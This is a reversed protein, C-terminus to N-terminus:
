RHPRIDNNVTRDGASWRRLTEHATERQRANIQEVDPADATFEVLLGDPDEVYISRCYGHERVTVPLGAADLRRQLEQQGAETVALAIHVFLPQRNAKYAAAIEPDAFAFFALAGGDAIGYFTHSYSVRRGPFDPFEGDEIWTALLPLGLVDEYFRRTREQDACVYANHHLRLPM